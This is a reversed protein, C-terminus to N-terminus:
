AGLLKALAQGVNPQSMLTTGILYAYIGQAKLEEIDRRTEIGSESVLIYEPPLQKKITKVTEMSISFDKLSRNNVGLIKIPLKMARDFEALDHVEVLVDMGLDHSMITYDLLQKDDLVSAILLVADAGLARSELIQYEDVIFDKRLIPISTKQRVQKLYAPAGQFYTMDTLVSLCTAGNAEYEKALEPANFNPRIIGRSPSAKKLEAIVAIKKSLVDNKLQRMFGRCPESKLALVQEIKNAPLAEKLRGVEERKTKIIKALIDM